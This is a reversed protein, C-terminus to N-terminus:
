ELVLEALNKIKKLRALISRLIQSVRSSSCDLVKGIENTSLGEYYRLIIILKERRDLKNLIYEKTDSRTVNDDHEAANLETELNYIKPIFPNKVDPGMKYEAIQIDGTQQYAFDLKAEYQGQGIRLTRPVWDLHRINDLIAGKIRKYMFSSFQVGREIDYANIADILGLVGDHILDGIDLSRSLSKSLKSAIAITRPMYREILINRTAESRTRKYERWLADESELSMAKTVATM